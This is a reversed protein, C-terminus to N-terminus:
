SLAGVTIVGPRIWQVTEKNVMPIINADPAVMQYDIVGVIDSVLAGIQTRVATEGPALRHFYDTVARVIDARADDLSLDSVRVNITVAARVETPALVRTNKATVPRQEDIYRQTANITAESPLANDAVIVVDVTGLGRRLPYVYAQTVGSVSMAWTHYDYKNGGAAPRRIVELLRGLLAADTEDDTGGRMQTLTVASDVGTPTTMLTAPTNDALNGAVGPLAASAAVSIHGADDITAPETTQYLRSSGVPRCQLGTPLPTGATGTLTVRGSAPTARKPTINRVRCHMVLYDHDATDPFMQRVMWSQYQYLGSIASAIANARMAYDSDPGTDADPLQNRIDRLLTGAIESLSPITYPM